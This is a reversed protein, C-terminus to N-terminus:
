AVTITNGPSLNQMYYFTGAQNCWVRVRAGIKNGATSFAVSTAAANNFTVLKGAPATVTMNQNVTNLFEFPGLGAALAPLTFNVAGGAGTTTFLKGVDTALVTYDATKAVEDLLDGFGFGNVLDDDLQFRGRMQRRANNDLNLLSAAKVPGGAVVWGLRQKNNADLDQMRLSVPLVSHVVASGDTAAPDYQKLLGSATIQGLLLGARLVTTPTNGADRAAGSFNGIAILGQYKTGWAFKNEYSEAADGFGPVGLWGDSRISM